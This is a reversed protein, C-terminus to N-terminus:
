ASVREANGKHFRKPSKLPYPALFWATEKGSWRFGLAKFIDKLPKTEGTVYVWKDKGRTEVKLGETEKLAKVLEPTIRHENDRSALYGEVDFTEIGKSAPTELSELRAKLEANEKELRAIIEKQTPKKAKAKTNAKAKTEKTKMTKVGKFENMANVIEEYRKSDRIKAMKADVDEIDAMAKKRTSYAQGNPSMGTAIDTIRWFKKNPECYGERHDIGYKGDDTVYGSVERFGDRERIVFNSKKM